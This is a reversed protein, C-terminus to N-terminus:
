QVASRPSVAAMEGDEMEGLAEGRSPQRLGSCMHYSVVYYDALRGARCTVM